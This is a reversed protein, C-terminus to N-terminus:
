PKVLPQVELRWSPKRDFEVHSGNVYVHRVRLEGAQGNHGELRRGAEKKLQELQKIQQHTEYYTAAAQVADPDAILSEPEVDTGRCATFFPCFERCWPIPKDKSAAEGHEVAYIVDHLWEDAKHVWQWDFPEQDVHVESTSGSRDLWINRTIVQEVPLDGFLGAQHAGLAYLTRQIRQQETPGHRKVYEIGDVTKLDTASPETPDIIDAHFPVTRGSPLLVTGGQEILVHPFANGYAVLAGAHIYTGVTAAANDDPDTRTAETVNLRTRERCVGIDSVGTIGQQSQQSRDRMLDESRLGIEWLAAFEEPTVPERLATM